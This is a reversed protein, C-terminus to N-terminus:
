EEEHMLRDLGLVKRPDEVYGCDPGPKYRRCVEPRQPYVTCGRRRDHYICAGSPGKALAGVYGPGLNKRPIVAAGFRPAEDAAVPIDWPM